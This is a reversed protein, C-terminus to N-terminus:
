SNLLLLVPPQLHHSPVLATSWVNRPWVLIGQVLWSLTGLYCSCSIVLSFPLDELEFLVRWMFMHYKKTVSLIFFTLDFYCKAGSCFHKSVEEHFWVCPLVNLLIHLMMRFMGSALLFLMSCLFTNSFLFLILVLFEWSMWKLIAFRTHSLVFLVIMFEFLCTICAFLVLRKLTVLMNPSLPKLHILFYKSSISIACIYCLYIFM